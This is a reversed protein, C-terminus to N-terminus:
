AFINICAYIYYFDLFLTKIQRLKKMPSFEKYGHIFIHLFFYFPILDHSLATKKSIKLVSNGSYSTGM